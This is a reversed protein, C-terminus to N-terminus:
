LIALLKVSVHAQSVSNNSIIINKLLSLTILGKYFGLFLMIRPPVQFSLEILNCSSSILSDGCNPMDDKATNIASVDWLLHPFQFEKMFVSVCSTSLNTPIKLICGGGRAVSCSKLPWPLLSGSYKDYSKM